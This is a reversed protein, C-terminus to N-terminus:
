KSNLSRLELPLIEIFTYLLCIELSRCNLKENVYFLLGGGFADRDKRFSKCGEIKFQVNPFSDDIKTESILFIDFTRKILEQISVFKNRFFNVNLHGFFLNKPYKAKISKTSTFANGKPRINDFDSFSKFSSNVKVSQQWAIKKLAPLISETFLTAGKDNLHLGYYNCHYCTRINDHSIFALNMENCRKEWIINVEKGKKRLHDKMPVVSSVLVTNNKQQSSKALLLINDALSQPM